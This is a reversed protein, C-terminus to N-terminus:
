ENHAVYEYGCGGVRGFEHDYAHTQGHGECRHEQAFERDYADSM